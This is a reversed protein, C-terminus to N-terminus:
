PVLRQNKRVTRQLAERQLGRSISLRQPGAVVVVGIEELVKNTKWTRRPPMNHLVHAPVVLLNSQQVRELGDDALTEYEVAIDQDGILEAARDRDTTLVRLGREPRLLRLATDLALQTDMGHAGETTDGVVLVVDDWPRLVRVAMAPVTLRQGTRDIDSGVLYDNLFEPGNWSLMVLSAGHEEALHIAGDEFSDDVRVVGDADHGQRTLHEVAVSAANASDILRGPEAVVFPTVIGADARAIAAAVASTQQPDSSRARADLLVRAGIPPRDVAPPRVRQAFFRTGYSTLLATIVIAIVSANVVIQEFMGLSLGVQAIALTSAAQGLSLSAMLGTEDLTFKFVFASIAAATVKGVVVFGTFLVGLSLTQVDFLLAPDINLGISVLFAPVFISAGIFELRDMLSGATPILRNMGLGALFAGILGEIGGILAITAGASMGILAFVFRQMRSRGVRVFFLETLKPLLWLCFAILLPLGIWVPLSPDETSPAIEGRGYESAVRDFVGTLPDAEIVVTSTAIALVTLSLLDAVVGASVAANVVKHNQLGATQVQPYAVLTNSAWMAGLLSGALLGLDFLQATVFITLVFPIIFGLLGYTLASKRNDNFAQIDFGVGALYMLVLIGISGLEDVLGEAELWGLVFPGFLTGGFILGVIGPIGVREAITPGLVVVLLLILFSVEVSGALV